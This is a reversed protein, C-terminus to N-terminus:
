PEAVAAPNGHVLSLVVAICRTSLRRVSKSLTPGRTHADMRVKPANVVTISLYDGEPVARNRHVASGARALRGAHVQLILPPIM